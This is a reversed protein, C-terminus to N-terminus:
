RPSGAKPSELAPGLLVAVAVAGAGLAGVVGDLWMSAHFRPVRARILGILTVYLPLYFGLYCADAISPFPEEPMPAIALSYVLNGVVGLVLAATMSWWALRDDAARRAAAACVFAAGVYVANYLVLDYAVAWTEGDPSYLVAAYPIVRGAGNALVASTKLDLRKAAEPTLTVKHLDTGKVEEVVAAMTTTAIAPLRERLVRLVAVDMQFAAAGRVTASSVIAVM